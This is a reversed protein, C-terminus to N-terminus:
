LVVRNEKDAFGYGNTWVVKKDVIISAGIGVIGTEIMKSEIFSDISTKSTSKNISQGIINSYFITTTLVITLAFKVKMKKKNISTNM